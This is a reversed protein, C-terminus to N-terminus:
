QLALSTHHLHMMGKHSECPYKKFIILNILLRMTPSIPSQVIAFFAFFVIFFFLELFIDFFAALLFTQSNQQNIGM